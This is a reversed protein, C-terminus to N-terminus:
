INWIDDDADDIKIDTFRKMEQKKYYKFINNMIENMPDNAPVTTIESIINEPLGIVESHPYIEKIRYYVNNVIEAVKELSEEMKYYIIILDGKNYHFNEIKSIINDDM